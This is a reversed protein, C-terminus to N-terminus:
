AAGPWLAVRLKILTTNPDSAFVQEASAGLQAYLASHEVLFSFNGPQGM